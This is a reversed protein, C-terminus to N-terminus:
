IRRGGLDVSKGVRREESRLAHDYRAIQQFANQLGYKTARRKLPPTKRQPPAFGGGRFLRAVAIATRLVSAFKRSIVPSVTLTVDLFRTSLPMRGVPRRWM